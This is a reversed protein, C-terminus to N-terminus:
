MARRDARVPNAVVTIVALAALFAAVSAGLRNDGPWLGDALGATLVALCLRGGLWQMPRGATLFTAGATMIQRRQHHLPHAKQARAHAGRAARSACRPARGIVRAVLRGQPPPAAPPACALSLSSNKGRARISPRKAARQARQR